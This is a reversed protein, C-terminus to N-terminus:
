LCGFGCPTWALMIRVYGSADEPEARMGKPVDGNRESRVTAPVCISAGIIVIRVEWRAM